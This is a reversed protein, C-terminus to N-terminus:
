DQAETKNDMQAENAARTKEQEALITKFAQELAEWQQDIQANVIGVETEIVCCNAEIDDRVQLSLSELRGFNAELRDKHEELVNHDKKNVYIKVKQHEAVGKLNRSIIDVVTEPHLEIEKGVIKKAAQLAIPVILDELGLHVKKIEAELYAIQENLRNLGEQFGADVALEKQKEIEAVVSKKYADADKKVADVLDKADLLTTFDESKVVKKHPNLHIKTGDIFSFAPM